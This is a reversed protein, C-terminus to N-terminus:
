KHHPWFCVFEGLKSIQYHPIHVAQKEEDILCPYIPRLFVPIKMTIMLRRVARKQGEIQVQDDNQLSRLKM